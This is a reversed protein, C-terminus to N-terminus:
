HPKRVVQPLNRLPPSRGGQTRLSLTTATDNLSAGESALEMGRVVHGLANRHDHGLVDAGATHRGGVDGADSFVVGLSQRAMAEQDAIDDVATAAINFAM